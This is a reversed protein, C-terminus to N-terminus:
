PGTETPYGAAVWADYGGLLNNVETFGAEVLQRCAQASRSGAKCNVLMETNKLHAIEGMRTGLDNVDINYADSIHGSAYEAATRVDLVFTGQQWMTYGESVSVNKYTLGLPCGVSILAVCLALLGWRSVRPM